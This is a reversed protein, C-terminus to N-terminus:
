DLLSRMLDEIGAITETIRLSFVSGYVTTNVKDILQRISHGIEPSPAEQTILAILFDKLDYVLDDIDQASDQYACHLQVETVITSGMKGFTCGVMNVDRLPRVNFDADNIDATPPIQGTLSGPVLSAVKFLPHGLTEYLDYVIGSIPQKDGAMVDITDEVARTAGVVVLENSVFTFSFLAQQKETLTYIKNGKYRHTQFRSGIMGEITLLLREEAFTGKLLAGCYPVGPYGSSTMLDALESANAFVVAETFDRPDIGTEHRVQDLAENVTRPIGTNRRAFEQYLYAFDGDNLIEQIEVKAILDARQPVLLSLSSPVTPSPYTRCSPFLVIAIMLIISCSWKIKNRGM